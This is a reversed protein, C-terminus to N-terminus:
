ILPSNQYDQICIVFIHNAIGLFLYNCLLLHSSVMISQGFEIHLCLFENESM